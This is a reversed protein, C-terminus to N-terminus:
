AAEHNHALYRQVKKAFLLTKIPVFIPRGSIEKRIFHNGNRAVDVFSRLRSENLPILIEKEADFLRHQCKAPQVDIGCDTLIDQLVVRTLRFQSLAEELDATEYFQKGFRYLVQEELDTENPKLTQLM